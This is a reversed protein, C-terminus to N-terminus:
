DEDLATFDEIVDARGSQKSMSRMEDIEVLLMPDCVVRDARLRKPCGSRRFEM